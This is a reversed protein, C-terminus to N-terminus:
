RSTGQIQVQVGTRVGAWRDDGTVPIVIRIDLVREEARDPALGGPLVAMVDAASGEALVTGNESIQVQLADFLASHVPDPDVLSVAVSAATGSTNRVAIRLDIPSGPAPTDDPVDVSVVEASAHWDSPSPQWGPEASGASELAFRVGDFQVVVDQRDVVQAATLGVLLCLPVALAARRRYRMSMSM